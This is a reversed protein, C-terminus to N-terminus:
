KIKSFIWIIVPIALAGAIGFWNHKFISYLILFIELGTIFGFVMILFINETNVPNFRNSMEKEMAKRMLEMDKSKKNM